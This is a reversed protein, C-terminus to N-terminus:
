LRALPSESLWALVDPTFYTILISAGARQFGNLTELVATKLDFAGNNGGHVLM